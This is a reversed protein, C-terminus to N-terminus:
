LEQMLARLSDKVTDVIERARGNHGRGILVADYSAHM